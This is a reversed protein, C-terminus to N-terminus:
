AGDFDEEALGADPAGGMIRDTARRAYVAAARDAPNRQYVAEFLARAAVADGAEYLRLGEEFDDRTEIKLRRVGDDEGDLFDFLRVPSQRGKVRVTGLSRWAFRSPATLAEFASDSAIISSGYTKTLSEIRVALNISDSLLDIQTREGEGVTGLMTKGFHIGIGVELPIRGAAVREANYRRVEELQAIAADVCQDVPRPFVAMVGDGMYKVILGHHSRLIPGVRRLYANILGFIDNPSMSEVLTTFSRIDSVFMAMEDQVQDGLELETLGKRGLLGVFESPVFRQASQQVSLQQAFLRANELSIAAQAAVVELLELRGPTFAGATMSNELYILGVLEDQKLLPLCLAARPSRAVFYPEVAFPGVRADEIVVRQRLRASYSLLGAPIDGPDVRLPRELSAQSVQVDGGAVEGAAIQLWQGDDRRLLLGHDAGANQIVIQMLNHLMREPVIERSIAQTAKLLSELDLTDADVASTSTVTRPRESEQPTDRVLHPFRAALNAVKARAGWKSYAARADRLYHGALREEGRDLFFAAALEAALGEEGPRGHARALDVARDYEARATSADAAIRAREARLLACRHELNAPAHRALEELLVTDAEVRDLEPDPGTGSSEALRAIRSLSGYFLYLPHEPLGAFAFARVDVERAHALAGEYDQFLYALMVKNAHYLALLPAQSAETIQDDRFHPGLLDQPHQGGQRLNAGIQRYLTYRPVAYPQETGLLADHHLDLQREVSELELGSLLSLTAYGSLSSAAFALQGGDIARRHSDLLPELATEYPERFHRLFMNFLYLTIPLIVHPSLREAVRLSMRGFDYGEAIAGRRTSVVIGYSAFAGASEPTLGHRASLAVMRAVSMAYLHAFGGYTVSALMYLFRMVVRHEADDADVHRSLADVSYPSLAEATEALERDVDEPTPVEPFRVGLDALAERTASVAALFDGSALQAQVRVAIASAKDPLSRANALVSEILREAAEGDHVLFAAEAAHDHLALAREYDLSWPDDGLLGLGVRLLENAAGHAAGNKARIGARLNLDSLELRDESSTILSRGINLHNVIEFLRDERAENSAMRLLREGIRRHHARRRDEPVLAYAAEQVRDHAFEFHIASLEDLDEVGSEVLKYSADRPRVLGASLAAWLEEAVQSPRSDRVFALTGLDFPSGVCAADALVSRSREDLSMLKDTMLEVVNEAVTRAQVQATDWTWSGSEAEFRLQGSAHLAQLFERM